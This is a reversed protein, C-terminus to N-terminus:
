QRAKGCGIATTLISVSDTSFADGCWLFINLMNFYGISLNREYLTLTKFREGFSFITYMRMHAENINDLM